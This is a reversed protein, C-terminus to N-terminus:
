PKLQMLTILEASASLDDHSQLRAFAIVQKGVLQQQEQSLQVAVAHGDSLLVVSQRDSNRMLSGTLLVGDTDRRQWIIWQWGLPEFANLLAQNDKIKTLLPLLAPEDQQSALGSVRAVERFASLDQNPGGQGDDSGKALQDVSAQTIKLQNQFDENPRYTQPLTPSQALSTQESTEAAANPVSEIASAPEEHGLMDTNTNRAPSLSAVAADPPMPQLVDSAVNPLAVPKSTAEPTPGQEVSQGALQDAPPTQLNTDAAHESMAPPSTDAGTDAAPLGVVANVNVSPTQSANQNMKPTPSGDNAPPMEIPRSANAPPTLGHSSATDNGTLSEIAPKSSTSDTETKAPDAAAVRPESPKPQRQQKLRDLRQQALERATGRGTQKGPSNGAVRHSDDEVTRKAEKIAAYVSGLMSDDDTPEVASASGNASSTSAQKGTPLQRTKGADETSTGSKTPKPRPEPFLDVPLGPQVDAPKAAVVPEKKDPIGLPDRLNVGAAFLIGIVLCAAIATPILPKIVRLVYSRNNRERPSKWTNTNTSPAEMALPVRRRVGDESTGLLSEELSRDKSLEIHSPRVPHDQLYSEPNIPWSDQTSQQRNPTQGETGDAHQPPATPEDKSVYNPPQPWAKPDVTSQQTEVPRYSHRTSRSARSQEARVPEASPQERHPKEPSPTTMVSNPSELDCDTTLSDKRGFEKPSDSGSATRRTPVRQENVHGTTGLTGTGLTGVSGEQRQVPDISGPHNRTFTATNHQSLSPTEKSGPVLDLSFPAPQFTSASENATTQRALQPKTTTATAPRNVNEPHAPDQRLLAQDAFLPDDQDQDQELIEVSDGAQCRAQNMAVGSMRRQKKGSTPDPHEVASPANDEQEIPAAQQGTAMIQDASRKGSGLTLPDSQRQKVNLQQRTSEQTALEDTTLSRENVHQTETQRELTTPPSAVTALPTAQPEPNARNFTAVRQELSRDESDIEPRSDASRTSEAECDIPLGASDLLTAKPPETLCWSQIPQVQGCWPCRLSGGQPIEAVPLRVLEHCTSCSASRM